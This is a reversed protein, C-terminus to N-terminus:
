SPNEYSWKWTHGDELGIKECLEDTFTGDIRLTYRFRPEPDVGHYDRNNFFYSRAGKELYFKEKKVEDWVFSPRSGSSFFLNINHDKHEKVSSDRHTLVGANPYTTFFLIRGVSKFPLTDIYKILKPFYKASDSWELNDHTKQFFGSYRLYVAFFWPVAAGLAFYAYKFVSNLEQGPPSLDAVEEMARKHIGTPDYIEINKVIESWCIQGNLRETEEPPISGYVQPMRYDNVLALGKCCELHLEENQSHDIYQDMNLIPIRHKGVGKVGIEDYGFHLYRAKGIHELTQKQDM